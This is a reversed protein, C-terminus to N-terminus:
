QRAIDKYYDGATPSYIITGMKEAGIPIPFPAGGAGVAVFYPTVHSQGNYEGVAASKVNLTNFTNSCGTPPPLGICPPIIVIRSIINKM